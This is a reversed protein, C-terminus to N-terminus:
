LLLRRLRCYPPPSPPPWAPIVSCYSKKGLAEKEEGILRSGMQKKAKVIRKKIWLLFAGKETNKNRVFFFEVCGIHAFDWENLHKKKFSKNRLYM